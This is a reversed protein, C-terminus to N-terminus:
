GGLEMVVEHVADVHFAYDFVAVTVGKTLTFGTGTKELNIGRASMYSQPDKKLLRKLDSYRFVNVQM